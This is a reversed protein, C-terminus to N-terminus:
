PQPKKSKPDPKPDLPIPKSKREFDADLQSKVMAIATGKIQNTPNMDLVELVFEWQEKELEVRLKM